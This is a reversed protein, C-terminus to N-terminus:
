TKSYKSLKDTGVAIRLYILLPRDFRLKSFIQFFFYYFQGPLNGCLYRLAPRCLFQQKTNQTIKGARKDRKAENIEYAKLVLQKIRGRQYLLHQSM